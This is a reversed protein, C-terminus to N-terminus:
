VIKISSLAPKGASLTYGFELNKGILKEPLYEGSMKELNERKIKLITTETGIGKDSQFPAELHLLINDYSIEKGTIKDPFEGRRKEIGVVKM